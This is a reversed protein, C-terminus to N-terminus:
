INRTATSAFNRSFTRDAWLFGMMSGILNMDFPTYTTAVIDGAATAAAKWTIAKSFGTMLTAFAGLISILKAAAYPGFIAFYGFPRMLANAGDIWRVGSPQGAKEQAVTFAKAEEAALAQAGQEKVLALAQAGTANIKDIEGQRVAADIVAQKDLMRFEHDNNARLVELAHADDQKKQFYGIMQMGGRIIMTAGGGTIFGMGLDLLTSAISM